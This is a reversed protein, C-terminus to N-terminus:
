RTWPRNSRTACRGAPKAIITPVHPPEGTSVDAASSYKQILAGAVGSLIAVVVLPRYENIKNFIVMVQDTLM